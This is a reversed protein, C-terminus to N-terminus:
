LASANRAVDYRNSIAHSIDIACNNKIEKDINPDKKIPSENQNMHRRKFFVFAVLSYLKSLPADIIM